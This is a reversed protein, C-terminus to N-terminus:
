YFILSLTFAVILGIEWSEFWWGVVGGFVFCGIMLFLYFEKKIALAFHIVMIYVAAIIAYLVFDM